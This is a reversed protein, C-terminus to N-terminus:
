DAKGLTSAQVVGSQDIVVVGRYFGAPLAMLVCPSTELQAQVSGEAPTFITSRLVLMEKRIGARPSIVLGYGASDRHGMEVLAYPGAPMAETNLLHVGRSQQWHEVSSADTFLTVTTQEQTTGCVTARALEHTELKKETAFMLSWGLDSACGSLLLSALLATSWFKM